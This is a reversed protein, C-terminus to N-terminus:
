KLPLIILFETGNGIESKVDIEGSHDKVIGYSISLGLGTGKGVDKTTYFPEFMKNKTEETMGPGTDKFSIYVNKENAYTKISIQGRDEIAQGANSLINM